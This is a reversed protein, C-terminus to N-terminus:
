NVELVVPDVVPGRARALAFQPRGERRTGGYRATGARSAARGM